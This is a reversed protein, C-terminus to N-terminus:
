IEPKRKKLFLLMMSIVILYVIYNYFTHHEINVPKTWKKNIAILLIVVRAINSVIIIMLGGLLWKFKVVKEIKETALVFAIWFSMVGYGLCSYVMQVGAGGKIRIIHDNQRYVAFGLLSVIKQSSNLILSRLWSIYNLYKDLWEYYTKGGPSSIGIFIYTGYDLVLYIILLKIAYILFSKNLKM